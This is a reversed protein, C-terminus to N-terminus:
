VLVPADAHSDDGHAVDTHPVDSHSSADGHTDSHTDTHDDTHSDEHPVDTHSDEHPIDLHTDAHPDIEDLHSDTHAVDDHDDSHPTDEHAVDSYDDGHTDSHTDTHSSSDTHAVDEHATDTHGADVHGQVETTGAEAIWHMFSEMWVSGGIATADSHFGTTGRTRRETRFADVYHVYNGEIWLSGIRGASPSAVSTGQYKYATGASNLYRLETGQIWVEGPTAGGYGVRVVIRGPDNIRTGGTITNSGHPKVVGTLDSGRLDEFVASSLALLKGNDARTLKLFRLQDRIEDNFSADVGPVEGPTWTRPTRWTEGAPTPEPEYFQLLLDEATSGLLLYLSAGYQPIM